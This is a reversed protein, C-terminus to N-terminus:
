EAAEARLSAKAAEIMEVAQDRHEDDMNMLAPGYEKEIDRIEKISTARELKDGLETLVADVSAPPEPEVDPIDPIDPIDPVSPASKVERYEDRSLEIDRVEEAIALGRLIDAAGDRAAFGRARMQLMRDPYQKWPGQKGWLGATMADQVSFTRTIEEGDPRVVTCTAKRQNGEGEITERIKFGRSWLLAPIGDGWLSPRGNIVAISQVASLPPMGLEMGYMIAACCDAPKDKFDKPVMGTTALMNAIRYAEDFSQPVIAHATGGAAVPVKVVENM